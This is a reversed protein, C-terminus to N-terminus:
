IFPQKNAQSKAVADGGEKEAIKKLEDVYEKTVRDEEKKEERQSKERNQWAKVIELIINLITVVSAIIVVIQEVTIIAGVGLVVGAVSLSKM